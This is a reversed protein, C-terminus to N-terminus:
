VLLGRGTLIPKWWSGGTVAALALVAREAYDLQAAQGVPEDGRSFGASLLSEVPHNEVGVLRAFYGAIVDLECVATGDAAVEVMIQNPDQFAPVAVRGHASLAALVERDM